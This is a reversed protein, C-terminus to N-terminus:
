PLNQMPDRFSVDGQLGPGPSSSGCAQAPAGGSSQTSPSHVLHLVQLASQPPPEWVRSRSTILPGALPPLAQSVVSLSTVPHLRAGQERAQSGTSQTHSSQPSHLAQSLHPPWIFRKRCTTFSACQPPECHSAAAESSVVFQVRCHWSGAYQMHPSQFSHLAQEAVHPVPASLLRARRNISVDDGGMRKRSSAESNSSINRWSLNCTSFFCVVLMRVRRNCSSMAANAPPPTARTALRATIRNLERLWACRSNERRGRSM